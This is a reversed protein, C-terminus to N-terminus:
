SAVSQSIELSWRVYVKLMRVPTFHASPCGNVLSSTNNVKWTRWSRSYVSGPATSQRWTPTAAPPGFWTTNLRFAGLAPKGSASRMPIMALCTNSPIAGAWIVALGNLPM